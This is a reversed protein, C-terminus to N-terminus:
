GFISEGNHEYTDKEYDYELEANGGTGVQEKFYVALFNVTRDHTQDAVNWTRTGAGLCDAKVTRTVTSEDATTSDNRRLNETIEFEYRSGARAQGAPEGKYVISFERNVLRGPLQPNSHKGTPVDIIELEGPNWTYGAVIPTIDKNATFYNTTDTPTGTTSAQAAVNKFEAFSSFNTIVAM